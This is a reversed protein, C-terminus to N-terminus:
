LSEGRNEKDLKEKLELGRGTLHLGDIWSNRRNVSPALYGEMVYEWVKAGIKSYTNEKIDPAIGIKLSEKSGMFELNVAIKQIKRYFIWNKKYVEEHSEESFKLTRIYTEVIKQIQEDTLAVGNINM